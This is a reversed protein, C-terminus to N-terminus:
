FYTVAHTKWVHTIKAIEVSWVSLVFQGSIGTRAAYYYRNRMGVNQSGSKSPASIHETIGTSAECCLATTVTVYNCMIILRTWVQNGATAGKRFTWNDIYEHREKM